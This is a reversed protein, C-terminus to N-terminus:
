REDLLAAATESISAMDDARGATMGGDIPILTGTMYSSDDSALFAVLAAAEDARGLRRLQSRQARADLEAQNSPRGWTAQSIGTPFGAPAIANVRVDPGLECAAARTFAAIGGKTAAYLSILAAGQLAATSSMNIISGRRAPLMVRAAAATGYVVSRLNVGLIHELADDDIDLIRGPSVIGANNFM